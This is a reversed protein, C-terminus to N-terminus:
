YDKLNMGQLFCQIVPNSEEPADDNHLYAYLYGEM